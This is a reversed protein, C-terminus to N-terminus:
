SKVEESLHGAFIGKFRQWLSIEGGRTPIQRIEKIKGEAAREGEQILERYKSFDAWHSDKVQPQILLDANELHAQSLYFCMIEMVRQIEDLGDGIVPPNCICLGVDVGIIFEAGKERAARCPLVEIVGGDVLIMGDLPIPPMFGPVACSAMVAKIISGRDLIIKRGSILDVAAAFFPIKTDRLDIEPLIARLIRQLDKESFLAKRVLILNLAMEKGMFQMLRRFLDPKELHRWNLKELLKLKRNQGREPQFFNLVRRELLAADPQIAYAAGIIAGMSTGVILDLPIGERELVKLVGVHALGRAGGGGLALGIKARKGM